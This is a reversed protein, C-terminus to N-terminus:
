AFSCLSVRDWFCFCFCFCFCVFCCFGLLCFVFLCVVGLCFCFCILFGLYECRVPLAGMSKFYGEGQLGTLLEVVFWVLTSPPAALLYFLPLLPNRPTFIILIYPAPSISWHSTSKGYV